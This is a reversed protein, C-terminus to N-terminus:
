RRIASQSTSALNGGGGLNTDGVDTLDVGRVPASDQMTKKSDKEYTGYESMGGGILNLLGGGVELALGVPASMPTFMAGSGVM